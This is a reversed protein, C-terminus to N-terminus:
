VIKLIRDEIKGVRLCPNFYERVWKEGAAGMKQRVDDERWFELLCSAIAEPDRPPVLWGTVGNKVYESVGGCDVAIVPTGAAMTELLITGSPEEWSPLMLVATRKLIEPVDDRHGTIVIREECDLKAMLARLDQEYRPDGKGVLLLKLNPIQRAAIAVARIADAQGKRRQLSGVVSAVWDDKKVGPLEAVPKANAFRQVSLGERMANIRSNLGLNKFQEAVAEAVTFVQRSTSHIFKFLWEHPLFFYLDPNGTLIERIHWIHPKQTTRAALTGSFIVMSNTYILDIRQEFIIRILRRHVFPERLFNGLWMFINRDCRVWWPCKVDFIKIDLQRLEEWLPGQGPLVVMPEVRERDMHQLLTM